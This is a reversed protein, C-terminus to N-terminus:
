RKRWFMAPEKNSAGGPGSCIEEGLHRANNFIYRANEIALQRDHIHPTHMAETMMGLLQVGQNTMISSWTLCHM